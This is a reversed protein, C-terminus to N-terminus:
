YIDAVAIHFWSNVLDTQHPLAEFLLVMQKEQGLKM